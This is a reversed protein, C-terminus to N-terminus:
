LFPQKVDSCFAAGWCWADLCGPSPYSLRTSYSRRWSELMTNCGDVLLPYNQGIEQQIGIIIQHAGGLVCYKVGVCIASFNWWIYGLGANWNAQESSAKGIKGSKKGFKGRNGSFTTLKCGVISM